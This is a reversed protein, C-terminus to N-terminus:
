RPTLGSAPAWAQLLLSPVVTITLQAASLWGSGESDAIGAAEGLIFAGAIFAKTLNPMGGRGDGEPPPGGLGRLGGGPPRPFSSSPPAAAYSESAQQELTPPGPPVRRPDGAQQSAVVLRAARRQPVSLRSSCPTVRVSSALCRPSCSPELHTGLMAANTRMNQILASAAVVIHAIELELSQTVVQM